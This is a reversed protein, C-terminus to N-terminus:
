NGGQAEPPGLIFEVRRNKARGAATTNDAIPRSEGLGVAFVREPPIGAAILWNAAAEARAISLALNTADSGRSDTHGEVTMALTPNRSLIGAGIPLIQELEPTLKASGSAFTAGGRLNGTILDDVITINWQPVPQFLPFTLPLRFLSFTTDIGEAVELDNVVNEAGFVQIGIGAIMDAVDQSPMTGTLYLKGDGPADAAVVPPELGTITFDTTLEVDPGLAQQLAGTLQAAREETPPYGRVTATEGAVELSSEGVIPLVAAIGAANPVWSAATVTEDVEVQNELFPAYILDTVYDLRGAAEPDPIIGAITLTGASLDATLWSVGDPVTTPPVTTTPPSTTPTTTTSTPVPRSAPESGTAVTSAPDVEVWRVTRVGAIGAVIEEAKAQDSSTGTLVATRGEFEVAALTVGADDLATQAQATLDGQIANIGVLSAAVLVVVWAMLLWRIRRDGEAISKM